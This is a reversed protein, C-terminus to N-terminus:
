FNNCYKNCYNCYQLILLGASIDTIDCISGNNDHSAVM